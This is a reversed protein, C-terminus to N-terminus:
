CAYSPPVHIQTMVASQSCTAQTSHADKCLSDGSKCCLEHHLRQDAWSIINNLLVATPGYPYIIVVLKLVQLHKTHTQNISCRAIALQQAFIYICIYSSVIRM